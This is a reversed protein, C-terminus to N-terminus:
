HLMAWITKGGRCPDIGFKDALQSVVWLGRGGLSDLDLDAPVAPITPSGDWVELRVWGGQLSVGVEIETGKAVKLTNTALESVIVAASDTLHALGWNELALEALKRPVRITMPDATLVLRYCLDHSSPHM